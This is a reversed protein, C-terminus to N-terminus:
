TEKRRRPTAAVALTAGLVGAGVLLWPFGQLGSVGVRRTLTNLDGLANFNGINDNITGVLSALDSSIKPWGDVLAAVDAAPPGTQPVARFSTDLEGVATVLVVFDDQLQRVESHKMFPAFSHLMRQGATTGRHLDSVFPYVALAASALLVLAVAPRARRRAGFLLVCSGYIAVIGFLVVLFPIRDFGGIDATRRYDPEARTVRDLLTSARRDIADAQGRYGDLGPFRGPAVGQQTYITDVAGAAQRLTVLDTRYRALADVEMHPAFRDIMQKGSAVKSFLGGAIPGVVLLVGFVLLAVAPVKPRRVPAAVARTVPPASPLDLVVLPEGPAESALM